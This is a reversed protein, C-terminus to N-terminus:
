RPKSPMRGRTGRPPTSEAYRRLEEDLATREIARRATRVETSDDWDPAPPESPPPEDPRRPAAAMQAAREVERVWRDRWKGGDTELREIREDLKAIRRDCDERERKEVVDVRKWLAGFGTLTAGGLAGLLALPLTVDAM